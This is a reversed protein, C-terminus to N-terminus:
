NKLDFDARLRLAIGAVKTCCDAFALRSATPPLCDVGWGSPTQRVAVDMGPPCGYPLKKTEELIMHRLEEKSKRAKTM